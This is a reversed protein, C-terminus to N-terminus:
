ARDATFTQNPLDGAPPKGNKVARVSSATASKNFTLLMWQPVRPSGSMAHESAPTGSPLSRSTGTHAPLPQPYDGLYTEVSLQQITADHHTPYIGLRREFSFRVSITVTGVHWLNTGAAEFFTSSHGAGAAFGTPKHSFPAYKAFTFPGLPSRSTFLGDAYSKCQTGPVAYQLYYVGGLKNMWAGEVYPPKDLLQNNDGQVEFGRHQYDPVVAAVPAGVEKWTSPDLEVASINGNSSCGSYMYVRGDDDVLMGPDGYASMNAALTWVGAYPDDTVFMARADFSTYYWRENIVVVMPAYREIASRDSGPGRGGVPGLGTPLVLTWDNMDTSHYYGGCKSAFLWYTGNHVVMAPDAAERYPFFFDHYPM